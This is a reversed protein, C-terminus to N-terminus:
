KGASVNDLRHVGSRRLAFLIAWGILGAAYFFAFFLPMGGLLISHVSQIHVPLPPNVDPVSSAIDQGKKIAVLVGGLILAMFFITSKPFRFGNRVTFRGTVLSLEEHIETLAHFHERLAGMLLGTTERLFLRGKAILKGKRIERREEILVSLMEEGFLERHESPYLRLLNRYIALM